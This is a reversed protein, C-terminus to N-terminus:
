NVNSSENSYMKDIVLPFKFQEDSRRIVELYFRFINEGSMIIPPVDKQIQFKISMSISNFDWNLTSCVLGNLDDFSCSTPVLMGTVEFNTYNNSEDWTGNFYVVVPLMEM